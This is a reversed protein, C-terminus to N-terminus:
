RDDELAWASNVCQSWDDPVPDWSTTQPGFALVYGAAPDYTAQSGDLGWDTVNPAVPERVWSAAPTADYAPARAIPHPIARTSEASPPLAPAPPHGISPGAAASPPFETASMSAALWALALVACVRVFVPASSLYAGLTTIGEHLGIPAPAIGLSIAPDCPQARDRVPM